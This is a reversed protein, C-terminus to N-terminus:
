DALFAAMANLSDRGIRSLTESRSGPKDAPRWWTYWGKNCMSAIFPIQVLFMVMIFADGGCVLANVISVCALFSSQWRGVLEVLMPGVSLVLFPATAVLIGRRHSMPGLHAAYALIRSPWVGFVTKQTFGFQPCALAHILEHVLILGALFLLPSLLFLWMTVMPWPNDSSVTMQVNPEVGLLTVWAFAVAVAIPVGSLGGILVLVFPSPERVKRWGEAEPNFECDDPPPGFVFRM